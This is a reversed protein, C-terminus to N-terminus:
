PEIPLDDRNGWESWSGDYNKVNPYGLVHKLVFWTHAARIGLQCHAIIEKDPTIGRSEYMRRLDDLPLLMNDGATADTYELHVAGPIHGGRAARVDTGEYEGSTRVDVIVADPRGVAARVDQWTAQDGPDIEPPEPYLTRRADPLDKTLPRGDAMWRERGGDLVHFAGPHRFHRLTWYGRMAYRSHGDGYWVVTSAPEVGLEAMVAAFQRPTIVHGVSNDGNILLPGYPALWRAGPIHGGDYTARDVSSEIIRLNPDGLHEELWRPTVFASM